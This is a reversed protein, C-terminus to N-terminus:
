GGLKAHVKTIRADARKSGKAKAKEYQELADRYRLDKFYADGLKLRYNQNSPSARVAREAYEIAKRTKGTDFYVDSLGMLAKANKRDYSIAQNFLSSAKSRQGARLAALGQDALEAAKAPDREAQGLLESPDKIKTRRRRNRTGGPAEEPEVEVPDEEPEGLAFDAPDPAPPPKAVAAVLPDVDDV